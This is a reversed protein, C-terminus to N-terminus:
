ETQFNEIYWIWRNHISEVRKMTFLDYLAIINLRMDLSFLEYIPISIISSYNKLALPSTKTKHLSARKKFLYEKFTVCFILSPIIRCLTCVSALLFRCMDTYFWVAFRTVGNTDRRALTQSIKQTKYWIQKKSTVPYKLHKTSGSLVRILQELFCHIVYNGVGNFSRVRLWITMELSTIKIM